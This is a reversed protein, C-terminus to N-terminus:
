AYAAFAHTDCVHESCVFHLPALSLNTDSCNPNFVDIQKTQHATSQTIFIHIPRTEYGDKRISSRALHTCSSYRTNKTKRTNKEIQLARRTSFLLMSPDIAHDISIFPSSSQFYPESRSGNLFFLVVANCLSVGIPNREEETRTTDRRTRGQEEDRYMRKKRETCTCM